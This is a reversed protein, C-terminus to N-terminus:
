VEMLSEVCSEFENFDKDVQEKNELYVEKNRIYKTVSVEGSEQMNANMTMVVIEKNDVTVTSSGNVNITKSKQLGM